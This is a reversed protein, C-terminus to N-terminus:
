NISILSKYIDIMEKGMKEWNFFKLRDFGKKIMKNREVNDGLLKTIKVAMEKSDNPDAVLAASGAIETLANTRSVVVPIGCAFAHIVSLGFGEYFSPQCYVTALSYVAAADEDPIFGLRLIKPNNNFKTLLESYHAHEPHPINFLFRMYDMPGSLNMLNILGLDEIEKAQKGGLVLPVDAIECAEILTPINKNYNIDGLNFVFKSPLNYKKRVSELKKQDNIVKYIPSPALYVVKVKDASVGLLRVIDKKSTESITIIEDINKLRAKQKMFKIKGKIGPPYKDPYILHILDQITVVVKKALKKEPLTLAYPFFTPYHIIDFNGSELKEIGQTSSFDFTDFRIEKGALKKIAAIQAKVMVGIGRFSHGSTLPGSDFAVKIM